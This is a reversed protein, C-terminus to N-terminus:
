VRVTVALDATIGPPLVFTLASQNTSSMSPLVTGVTQATGVLVIPPASAPTGFFFGVITMLVGGATPCDVSSVIIMTDSDQRAPGCGSVGTIIPFIAYSYLQSCSYLFINPSIYFHSMLCISLLVTDYSRSVVLTTSDWLAFPLDVALLAAAGLVADSVTSVLIWSSSVLVM